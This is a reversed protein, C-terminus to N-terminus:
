TIRYITGVAARHQFQAVPFFPFLPFLHCLIDVIGLFWFGLQYLVRLGTGCARFAGGLGPFAAFHGHDLFLGGYCAACGRWRTFLQLGLNNDCAMGAVGRRFFFRWAAPCVRM